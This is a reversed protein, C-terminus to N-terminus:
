CQNPAKLCRINLRWTDLYIHPPSVQLGDSTLVHIYISTYFNISDCVQAAVEQLSLAMARNM